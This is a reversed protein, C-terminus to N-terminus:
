GRRGASVSALPSWRDLSTTRWRRAPKRFEQRDALDPESLTRNSMNTMGDDFTASLILFARDVKGNPTLPVSEFVGGRGVPDHDPLIACTAVCM